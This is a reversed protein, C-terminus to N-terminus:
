CNTDQLIRADEVWILDIGVYVHNCNM